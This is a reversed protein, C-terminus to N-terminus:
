AVEEKKIIRIAGKDCRVFLDSGVTFGMKELWCGKLEIHPIEVNNRYYGQVPVTASNGERVVQTVPYYYMGDTYPSRLAFTISGVDYEAVLQEGAKFGFEELWFGSLRIRPFIRSRRSGGYGVTLKRTHGM